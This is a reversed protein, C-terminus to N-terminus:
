NKVMMDIQCPRRANYKDDRVQFFCLRACADNKYCDESKITIFRNSDKTCTAVIVGSSSRRSYVRSVIVKTPLSSVFRSSVLRSSVLRSSVLHTPRNDFPRLHTSSFSFLVVLFLSRSLVPCHFYFLVSVGKSYDTSLSQHLTAAAVFPDIPRSHDDLIITCPRDRIDEIVILREVTM